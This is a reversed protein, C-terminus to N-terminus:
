SKNQWQTIGTYVLNYLTLAHETEGTKKLIQAVIENALTQKDSESLKRDQVIMKESLTLTEDTPASFEDLRTRHDAIKERINKLILEFNDM